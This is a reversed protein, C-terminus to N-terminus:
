AHHSGPDIEFFKIHKNKLVVLMMQCHLTPLQIVGLTIQKNNVGPKWCPINWVLIWAPSFLCLFLNM